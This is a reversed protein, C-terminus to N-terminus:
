SNNNSSENKYKLLAADLDDCEKDWYHFNIVEGKVGNLYQSLSIKKNSVTIQAAYAAFSLKENSKNWPPYLKTPRNFGCFDMMELCDSIHWRIDILKLKTLDVHEWCHLQIDFGGLKLYEVLEPNNCLDKAIVAVTHTVGAKLFKDHIFKLRTLDTSVSIDDDRFIM